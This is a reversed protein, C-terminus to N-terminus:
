TGAAVSYDPFSSSQRRRRRRRRRGEGGEGGGEIGETGRVEDRNERSGPLVSWARRGERAAALLDIASTYMCVYMGLLYRTSDWVEAQRTQKAVLTM